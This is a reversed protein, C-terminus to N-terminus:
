TVVFQEVTAMPLFLRGPDDSFRRFGHRECFARAADNKADVIVVMAAIHHRHELCRKLADFLVAAGYGQGQYRSDVALRGILM